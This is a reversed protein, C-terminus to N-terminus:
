FVISMVTVPSFFLILILLHTGRLPQLLRHSRSRMGGLLGEGADM